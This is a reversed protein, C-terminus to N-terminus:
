ALARRDSSTGVMSGAGVGGVGDRLALQRQRTLQRLTLVNVGVGTAVDTAADIVALLVDNLAELGEIIKNQTFANVARAASDFFDYIGIATGLFPVLGLVIKLYTFIM